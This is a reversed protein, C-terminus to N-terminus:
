DQPDGEEDTGPAPRIKWASSRRKPIPHGRDESKRRWESSYADNLAKAQMQFLELAQPTM